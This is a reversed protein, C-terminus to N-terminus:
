AQAGMKEKLKKLEEAARVRDQLGKV